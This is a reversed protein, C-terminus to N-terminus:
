QDYAVRLTDVRIVRNLQTFQELHMAAYGSNIERSFSQRWWREFETISGRAFLLFPRFINIQMTGCADSVLWGPKGLRAQITEIWV